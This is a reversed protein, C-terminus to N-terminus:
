ESLVVNSDRTKHGKRENGLDREEEYTKFDGGEFQRKNLNQTRKKMKKMIKKQSLYLSEKM